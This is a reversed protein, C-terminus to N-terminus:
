KKKLFIRYGGLPDFADLLQQFRGKAPFWVAQKKKRARRRDPDDYAPPWTIAGLPDAARQIVWARVLAQMVQTQAPDTGSVQAILAAVEAQTVKRDRTGGFGKLGSLDKLGLFTLGASLVLSSVFLLRWWWRFNAQGQSDMSKDKDELYVEWGALQMKRLGADRASVEIPQDGYWIFFPEGQKGGLRQLKLWTGDRQGGRAVLTARGADPGETQFDLRSPDIPGAKDDILQLVLYCSLTKGGSRTLRLVPKGGAAPQPPCFEVDTGKWAPPLVDKAQDLGMFITVFVQLIGLLWLLLRM